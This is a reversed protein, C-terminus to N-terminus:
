RSLRFNQTSSAALAPDKDGAYRQTAVLPLLSISLFTNKAAAAAV